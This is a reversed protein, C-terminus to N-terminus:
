EDDGVTTGGEMEEGQDRAIDSAGGPTAPKIEGSWYGEYETDDMPTPVSLAVLRKGEQGEAEFVIAHDAVGSLGWRIKFPQGDRESVFLDRLSEDATLGMREVLVKATNDTTLFEILEDESSPGVLQNGNMYVNYLSHVRKINTDNLDALSPLNEGCGSCLLALIPLLVAALRFNKM